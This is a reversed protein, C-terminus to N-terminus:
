LFILNYIKKIYILVTYLLQSYKWGWWFLTNVYIFEPKLPCFNPQHERTALLFATLMRKNTPKRATSKIVAFGALMAALLTTFTVEKSLEM